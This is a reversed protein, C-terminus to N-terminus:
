KRKIIENDIGKLGAYCLTSAVMILVIDDTDFDKIFKM